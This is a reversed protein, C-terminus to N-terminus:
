KKSSAYEQFHAGIDREHEVKAFASALATNGDETIKGLHGLCVCDLSCPYSDSSVRLLGGNNGKIWRSGEDKDGKAKVDEGCSIRM